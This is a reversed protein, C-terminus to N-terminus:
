KIKDPRIYYSNGVTLSVFPPEPKIGAREATRMTVDYVRVLNEEREHDLQVAVFVPIGYMIPQQLLDREQVSWDGHIAIGLPHRPKPNKGWDSSEIFFKIAAEAVEGSSNGPWTRADVKAFFTDLDEKLGPELSQSMQKVGPHDASYREAMKLWERTRDHNERRSFDHLNKLNAMQTEVRGIIDEAMRARIGEIKAIGETLESWAAGARDNGSYGANEANKDIEDRTSGYKNEFTQLKEKLAALENQEFAEIVQIQENLPALDNYYIVGCKNFTDMLRQAESKLAGCDANVIEASAAAQAAQEASKSRASELHKEADSFADTLASLDPHSTVGAKAAEDLAEEIMTRGQAINNEIRSLLSQVMDIGAQELREFNSEMSRLQNQANQMPRRANYPLDTKQPSTPIGTRPAPAAPRPTGPKPSATAAPKAAEAAAPTSSPAPETGIPRGLRRELDQKFKNLKAEMGKVQPNEPEATKAGDFVELAELLVAAAEEKKGGFMQRESQRRLNEAKKISESVNVESM